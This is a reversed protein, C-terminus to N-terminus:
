RSWPFIYFLIHEKKSEGVAEYIAFIDATDFVTALSIKREELNEYVDAIEEKALNDLLFGKPIYLSFDLNKGVRLSLLEDSLM